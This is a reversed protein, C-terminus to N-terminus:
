IFWCISPQSGAGRHKKHEQLTQSHRRAPLTMATKSEQPAIGSSCVRQGRAQTQLIITCSKRTNCKFTTNWLLSYKYLQLQSLGFCFLSDSLLCKLIGVHADKQSTASIHESHYNQCFQHSRTHILLKGGLDCNKAPSGIFPMKPAPVRSKKYCSHTYSQM